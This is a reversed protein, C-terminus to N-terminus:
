QNCCRSQRYLYACYAPDPTRTTAYICKEPRMYRSVLDKAAAEKEADSSTPLFDPQRIGLRFQDGYNEYLWDFDNMPQPRWMDIGSKAMEPALRDIHGCSHLEFILQHEHCYKTLRQVHPLIMTRYTEPSFFPAQQSGWDDHFVIGTPHFYQIEHDMIDIYLDCLATFLGSVADQQDEDILAVVANEFDMFSILREFLGNFHTIFVPLEGDSLYVSNRAACADWAWSAIDPFQIIEKWDNADLLLPKGPVVMSGQAIEIYQWEVGFMDKGGKQPPVDAEMVFARAINDPNIAPNFNVCDGYPMWVPQKGAAFLQYNEKPTIPTNIKPLPEEGSFAPFTGIVEMESEHYPIHQM